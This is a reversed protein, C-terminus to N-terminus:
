CRRWRERDRRQGREQDAREHDGAASSTGRRAPARGLGIGAHAGCRRAREREDEVRVHGVHLAEAGPREALLPEPLRHGADVQRQELHEVARRHRDPEGRHEAVLQLRHAALRALAVQAEQALDPRRDVGLVGGPELAAALALQGGLHAPRRAVVREGLPGELARGRDPPRRGRARAAHLQPGRRGRVRQQRQEGGVRRQPELQGGARGGVHPAEAVPPAAEPQRLAGVRRPELALEGVM